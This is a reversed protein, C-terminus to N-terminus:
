PQHNKTEMRWPQRFNKWGKPNVVKKGVKLTSSRQKRGKPKIVKTELREPQPIEKWGGDNIFRKWDVHNIFRKGLRYPQHGIKKWFRPTQSQKWNKFQHNMQSVGQKYPYKPVKMLERILMCPKMNWLFFCVIYCAYWSRWKGDIDGSYMMIGLLHVQLLWASM